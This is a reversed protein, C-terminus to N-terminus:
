IAGDLVPTPQPSKAAAYTFRDKLRLCPAELLNWSVLALAVAIATKGLICFLSALIYSHARALILDEPFWRAMTPAIIFHIVYIGYSYKGFFRLVPNDIVRRLPATPSDTLLITVFSAYFVGLMTFGVTRILGGGMWLGKERYFDVLFVAGIASFLILAWRRLTAPSVRRFLVTLLAGCALGDMRAPTQVFAGELMPGTLTFLAIIRLTMALGIIGLLAPLLRREPLFAVLFPWVLYFHEEVALSWLHGLNLTPSGTAAFGHLFVNVNAMHLWYWAQTSRMADFEPDHGSSVFWPVIGFVVALASLYLPLIRLVRRQYFNRIWHPSQRVRLLIDTILFGSLVFFLDVGTWGTFALKKVWELPRNPMLYDPTFHVLLVLVIAVGRIADLVPIRAGHHASPSEIKSPAAM